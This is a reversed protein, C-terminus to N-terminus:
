MYFKRIHESFPNEEGKYFKLIVKPAIEEKYTPVQFILDSFNNIEEPYTNLQNTFKIKPTIYKLIVSQTKSVEKIEEVIKSYDKTLYNFGFIVVNQIGLKSRLFDTLVITGLNKEQGILTLIM